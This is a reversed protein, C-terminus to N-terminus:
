QFRGFVCPGSGQDATSWKVTAPDNFPGNTANVKWTMYTGGLIGSGASSHLFGAQTPCRLSLNGTSQTSQLGVVYRGAPMSSTLETVALLGSASADLEATQYVLTTPQWATDASYVGIRMKAGTVATSLNVGLAVLTRATDLFWPVFRWVQYVLSYTGWTNGFQWGPAYYHSTGGNPVPIGADVSGGGGGAPLPTWAGTGGDVYTGAAPTGTGIQAPTHAHSAAAKTDLGAKLGAPTVARQTDTGTTAEATTALEVMGIATESAQRNGAAATTGTTGIALNSTGAGIATRADAATAGAAIVAPKGAITTWTPLTQDGTNTGSTNSLKTREAPTLALRTATDTTQDLTHTHATPTRADSLRPDTTVVATGTVDEPAHTHSSNAKGALGATLEADTALSAADTLDTSSLVVAGTRGAVSDVAGGGGGGSPLTITGAADNYTGGAGTVMAGVIDQAAETFGTINTTTHTHNSAAYSGAPQKDDLASQLGSVQAITHSHSSAAKGDLATQLGTVNAITHGHTAPAYTGDHNHSTPSKGNLVTQLGDVDSVTHQHASAAYNGAPQKGDLAGQLGTVNAITHGHTSPPFAGPKGEVDEWSIADIPVPVQPLSVVEVEVVDGGRLTLELASTPTTASYLRHMSHAESNDLLNVVGKALVTSFSDPSWLVISYSYEGPDSDLEAAQFAFVAEGTTPSGITAESNVILNNLDFHDDDTGQEKMVFRLTCGTLNVLSGDSYKLRVRFTFSKRRELDFNLAQKPSNSLKAM